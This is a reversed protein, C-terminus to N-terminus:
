LLDIVIITIISVIVVVIIITVVFIIIVVIIIIIVIIIIMISCIISIICIYRCCHDTDENDDGISDIFNSCNDSGGEDYSSTFYSVVTIIM